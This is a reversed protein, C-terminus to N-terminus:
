ESGGTQFITKVRGEIRASGTRLNITLKQGSLASAGQTLIVAGEMLISGADISYVATQAEAAESGSVLTVGGTAHMREIQGTSEGNKTKYEVLIKAASMRMNGQGVVVNGVFEATGTKQDISFSDSLIEVQQSTDHNLGGFAVDTSQANLPMSLSLSLLATGALQTITRLKM